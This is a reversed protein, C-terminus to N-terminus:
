GVKLGNKVKQQLQLLTVNKKDGLVGLVLYESM